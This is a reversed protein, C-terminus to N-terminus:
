VLVVPEPEYVYLLVGKVNPFAMENLLSVYFKVQEKHRDDPKGTKFDIVLTDNNNFVIRDPRYTKGGPLLIEPEAMIKLEPEFYRNVEPWSIFSDLVKHIETKEFLSIIGESEFGELISAFDGPITTRSLINHILIGWDRNKQEVIDWNKFAQLSLMMRNRWRSSYFIDLQFPTLHSRIKREPITKSGFFYNTQDEKWLGKHNLFDKLFGSVSDAADKSGSPMETYVYLRHTPRTLVVYLLNILDLMLKDNEETYLRSYITKLLAQSENVLTTKLGPLNKEDLEIWMKNRPKTHKENAFPYIVIPFELGKAKHITMVQVADTGSPMIISQKYGKNAWWDLFSGMNENKEKSFKFVADLFFQIYPDAKLNLNFVRLLEETIGYVTERSLSLFDLQFGNDRLSKFFDVPETFAFDKNLYIGFTRFQEHISGQLMGKKVLYSIAEAQAIKDFRNVILKMIAILLRVEISGSMQLSESSIIPIQRLMLERSLTNANKNSRCLIAIDSFQFGENKLDSIIGAVKELNFECFAQENNEKDYFEIQIMGGTKEPNCVQVVDDYIARFNEPLKASIFKFFDNNFEIIEKASRFNNRLERAEYNRELINQRGAMVPDDPCKYIIPLMNFQEVEGERWRYIAQKGDGVIMNIGNTALSNEVLPLLNQWQMVSTDQFEDILYHRYKEGIREYIFPVPEKLVVESIRKNFESILIIENESKYETLIGSVENLLAVPYLNKLIEKWLIYQAKYTNVLGDIKQYYGILDAKIRDIEEKESQTSKGAYWKNNDITNRVHLNPELKDFRGKKLNEFYTGIGNKGQYFAEPPIDKSEIIGDAEYALDTVAKEFDRIFKNIVVNIKSFDEFTLTKIKQIFEYGNEKLIYSAIDQIDKEINWNKEDGAKSLTFGILIKTLQEETGVRSILIDIIKSLLEDQDMEVEFKLPLHLDFAFSRIVRHMFSDITSIAFDSYNHLILKLTKEANGAITDLSKHSRDVIEKMILRVVNSEPYERYNAIETLSGIIREKMENAAKNTFTIALIYRFNEPEPLVLNLYESVLTFTKGSGASSKYVIFSM